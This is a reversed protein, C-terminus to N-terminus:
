NFENKITLLALTKYGFETFNGHSSNCGLIPYVLAKIM